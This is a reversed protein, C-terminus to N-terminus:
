AQVGWTGTSVLYTLWAGAAIALGFPVKKFEKATAADPAMAAVRERVPFWALALVFGCLAVAALMWLGYTLPLWAATAAYFKADGGGIVKGAFLAIGAILAIIAHVLALGAWTGGQTIWGAVLGTLLVSLCLLNPLRRFRFDFYSAILCQVGLLAQAALTASLITM